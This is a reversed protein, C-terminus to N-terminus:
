TGTDVTTENRVERSKGDWFSCSRVPCWSCLGSPKPIFTQTRHAHELRRIDPLFEQWLKPVDKRDYREVDLKGAQLWLFGSNVRQVEPYHAFLLLAFLMLQRSDQKRRGTKYDVVRADSGDFWVADLIGRCWVDTAFWGTPAFSNNIALKLECEVNGPLTRLRLVVPLYSEFRSPVPEDYLETGRVAFEFFRHVEEGWRTADNPEDVFDKAVRVHYYMKGCNNFQTLASHSWAVPKTKQAKEM